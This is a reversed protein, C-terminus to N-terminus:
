KRLIRAVAEVKVVPCPIEESWSKILENSPAVWKSYYDKLCDHSYEGGNIMRLWLLRPIWELPVNTIWTKPQGNFNRYKTLWHSFNVINYHLLWTKSITNLPKDPGSFLHTSVPFASCSTRVAVKGSKHGLYGSLTENKEHIPDYIEQSTSDVRLFMEGRVMNKLKSLWTKRNWGILNSPFFITKFLAEQCFVRETKEVRTPILELPLFNVQEVNLPVDNLLMKLHDKELNETDPCVLEDADLSLIWDYGEAAAKGYAVFANFMQRATAQKAHQEIVRDVQPHVGKLEPYKEPTELDRLEVFDLDTLTERTGDESQDLYVYVKDVGIYHHFLLSNRLMAKENRATIVLAIKM